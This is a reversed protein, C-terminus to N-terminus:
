MAPELWDQGDIFSITSFPKAQETTLSKSWSVRGDRNAGPGTCQYEAYYVTKQRAPDAWDMWGEPRIMNAIQCQYFIVRSYAGWARGLYISGSGGIKCQFFVFGTKSNSDRKQATVSGSGGVAISTMKCYMYFSQGNGFIWDISGVIECSRFFHRGEKDYLTDQAGFFGCRYFAGQDGQIRLAVAQKGVAGGPPPPASNVFTCDSAIFGKAEVATSASLSTSGAKEATDGWTLVVKRSQCKFYINAKKKTIMLKQRYNGNNIKIIIRKTNNDPVSDIADQVTKYDGNGSQDVVITKGMPPFATTTVDGDAAVSVGDSKTEDYFQLFCTWGCEDDTTAVSCDCASATGFFAAAVVVVVLLAVGNRLVAM